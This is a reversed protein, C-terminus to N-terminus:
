RATVVDAEGDEQLLRELTAVPMWVVDPYDDGWNNNFPVAQANPRALAALVEDATTAWRYASIGLTTKVPGDGVDRTCVEQGVQERHGITQLVKCAARCTSGEGDPYTGEVKRAEDYLWFADFLTGRLITQARSHGFGVCAGEEGQNYFIRHAETNLKVAGMPELCFSHGGRVTGLDERSADPLHWSGDKTQRLKGGEPDFSTYWNVGLTVPVDTPAAAGLARLPYKEVHEFDPPTVRGLTGAM